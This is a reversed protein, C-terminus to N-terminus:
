AAERHNRLDEMGALIHALNEPTPDYRMEKGQQEEYRAFLMADSPRGERENTWEFAADAPKLNEHRLRSLDRQLM